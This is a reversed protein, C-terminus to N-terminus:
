EDDVVQQAGDDNSRQDHEVPSTRPFKEVDIQEGVVLRGTAPRAGSDAVDAEQADHIKLLREGPPQTDVTWQM